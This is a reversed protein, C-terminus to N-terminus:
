LGKTNLGGGLGIGEKRPGGNSPPPQNYPRRLQRTDKDADRAGKRYSSPDNKKEERIKKLRDIFGRRYQQSTNVNTIAKNQKVLLEKIKANHVANTGVVVINVDLGFHPNRTRIVESLTNVPIDLKVESQVERAQSLLKKNSGSRTSVGKSIRSNAKTQSYMMFALNAIADSRAEDRNLENEVSDNSALTMGFGVFWPIGDRTIVWRGGVMGGINLTDLYQDVTMDKSNEFEPLVNGTLVAEARRQLNESWAIIVGVEYRNKEPNFYEASELVTAGVLAKETSRTVIRGIQRNPASELTEPRSNISAEKQKLKGTTDRLEALLGLYQKDRRTLNQNLSKGLKEPSYSPDVRKTAGDLLAVVRNFFGPGKARNLRTLKKRGEVDGVDELIASIESMVQQRQQLLEKKEVDVDDVDTKGKKGRSSKLKDQAKVKTDHFEALKQKADLTAAIFLLERNDMAEKASRTNISAEGVFVAPTIKKIEKALCLLKGFANDPSECQKKRAKGFSGTGSQAEDSLMTGPDRGIEAALSQVFPVVSILFVLALGYFLKKLQNMKERGKRSFVFYRLTTFYDAANITPQLTYIPM